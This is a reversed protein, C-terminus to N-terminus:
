KGANVRPTRGFEGACIVITEELLGRSQLDRVLAWVGSRPATLPPVPSPGAAGISPATLVILLGIAPHLRPHLAM